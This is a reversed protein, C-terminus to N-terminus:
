MLPIVDSTKRQNSYEKRLREVDGEEMVWGVAGVNEKLHGINSSKALTVVNEQSILWNIAIQAPTKKYKECMEEILSDLDEALVGQEVPRWAVLMVDERQCYELLSSAEPERYILNYHVQNAVIKNKTHSQAERCREKSFNSVGINKILGEDKLRDLASMTESLPIRPNPAHILYLDLYDTQLRELSERCARLVDDYRLHEDDVKSVLFLKKRDYGKIAEGVLEEAHGAAYVEATDIHTIGNDLAFEIAFVDGEDHSPDRDFRGGMQWTGLGFVPMEFGSKLKKTPIKM